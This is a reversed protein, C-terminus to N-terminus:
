QNLVEDLNLFQSTLMTLAALEVPPLSPNPKRAGINLLAAADAPNKQYQARFGDLSRKAIQKEKLTLTRALLRTAIYDLQADFEIANEMARAALVRAAEVFQPDNMTVLAQLPTNTRERRLTCNERTPANFIDMSAPPASRKWFTYLSRRYLGDGSDQKYFRTDSGDMAVAEWVGEPQYPKVSPGGIANALIGSAALAYDRIIEADL